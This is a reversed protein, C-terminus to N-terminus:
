PCAVMEVDYAIPESTGTVVVSYTRGVTSQWGQPLIRIASRSGFGRQLTDVQIALPTGGESITVQAADLDISQSQITWGTEDVTQFSADIAGIPFPGPAPWATWPRGASGSGRLVWMCSDSDTSGLGIPGLSNALIWRRHGMTTPNGPDAMYLDVARVGPTSALNGNGAANAGEATYCSWSMPPSHDLDNNADIMLACQQADADRSPDTVVPPLEALFRYLNVLKLANARGEASVDGAICSGLDGSWTGENMDARDQNWRECVEMERTNIGGGSGPSGAMGVNGTGGSGGSGAAGGMDSGSMGGSGGAGGSGTGLGCAVRCGEFDNGSCTCQTLCDACASCEPAACRAGADALGQSDDSSSCGLPALTGLLGAILSLRRVM